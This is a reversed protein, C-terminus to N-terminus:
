SCLIYTTDDELFGGIKSVVYCSDSGNGAEDIEQCIQGPQLSCTNGRNGYVYTFISTM